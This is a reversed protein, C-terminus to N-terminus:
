GPSSSIESNSLTRANWIKFNSFESVRFASFIKQTEFAQSLVLEVPRLEAECGDAAGHPDVYSETKCILM